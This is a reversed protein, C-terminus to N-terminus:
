SENTILLQWGKTYRCHNNSKINVLSTFEPYIGGAASDASSEDDGDALVVRVTSRIAASGDASAEAGGPCREPKLLALLTNACM